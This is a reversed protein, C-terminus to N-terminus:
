KYLRYYTQFAILWKDREIIRIKYFTAKIDLKM